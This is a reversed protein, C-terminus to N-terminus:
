NIFLGTMSLRRNKKNHGILHLRMDLDERLGLFREFQLPISYRFRGMGNFLVDYMFFDSSENSEKHYSTIDNVTIKRVSTYQM